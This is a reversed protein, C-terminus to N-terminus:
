KGEVNNQFGEKGVANTGDKNIFTPLHIVQESSM